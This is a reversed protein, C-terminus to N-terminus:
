SAGNGTADCGGNDDRQGDTTKNKPLAAAGLLVLVAGAVEGVVAVVAKVVIVVAGKDTAAALADDTGSAGGLEVLLVGGVRLGEVHLVHWCAVVSVVASVAVAHHLLSGADASAGGRGSHTGIGAAGVRVLVWAPRLVEIVDSGAVVALQVVTGRM